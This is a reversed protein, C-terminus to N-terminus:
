LSALPKAKPEVPPPLPPDLRQLLQLWRWRYLGAVAPQVCKMSLSASATASYRHRWLLTPSRRRVGPTPEGLHACHLDHSVGPVSVHRRAATLSATYANCPLPSAWALRLGDVPCAQQYVGCVGGLGASPVAFFPARKRKKRTKTKASRRLIARRKWGIDHSIFTFRLRM